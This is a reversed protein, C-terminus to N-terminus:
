WDALLRDPRILTPQTGLGGSFGFGGDLDADRGRIDAGADVVGLGVLVDWDKCLAYEIRGLIM